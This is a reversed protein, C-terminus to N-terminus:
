RNGNTRLGLRVARATKLSSDCQAVVAVEIVLIVPAGKRNSNGDKVGKSDLVLQNVDLVVDDNLRVVVPGCCNVVGPAFM